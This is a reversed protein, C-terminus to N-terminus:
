YVEVDSNSSAPKARPVKVAAELRQLWYERQELLAEHERPNLRVEGILESAQYRTRASFIDADLQTLNALITTRVYGEGWSDMNAQVVDEFVRAIDFYPRALITLNGYGLHFKIQSLEDTSFAM